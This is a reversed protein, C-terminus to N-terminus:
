GNKLTLEMRADDEALIRDRPILKGFDVYEGSIIRNQM